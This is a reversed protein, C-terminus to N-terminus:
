FKPSIEFKEIKYNMQLIEKSDQVLNARISDGIKVPGIGSPTGTLILDGPYLTVYETLFSLMDPIKFHM